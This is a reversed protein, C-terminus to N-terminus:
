RDISQDAFCCVLWGIWSWAILRGVFWDILWDVLRHIWKRILWTWGIVIASNWLIKWYREPAQLDQLSRGFRRFEFHARHYTCIHMGGEFCRYPFDSVYFIRSSAGWVSVVPTWRINKPITTDQNNQHLGWAIKRRTNRLRWCYMSSRSTRLGQCNSVWLMPKTEDYMTISHSVSMIQRM